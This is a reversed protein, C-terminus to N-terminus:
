VGGYMALAPHGAFLDYHAICESRGMTYFFELRKSDGLKDIGSRVYESLPQSPNTIGYIFGAKRETQAQYREVVCRCFPIALNYTDLEFGSNLERKSQNFFFLDFTIGNVIADRFLCYSGVTPHDDTRLIFCCGKEWDGEIDFPCTDTISMRSKIRVVIPQCRLYIDSAAPCLHAGSLLWSLAYVCATPYLLGRANIKLALHTPLAVEILKSKVIGRVTFMDRCIVSLAETFATHYTLGTCSGLPSWADPPARSLYCLVPVGLRVGAAAAASHDSTALSPLDDRVWCIGLKEVVSLDPINDSYRPPLQTVSCAVLMTMLERM